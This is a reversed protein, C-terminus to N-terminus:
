AKLNESVTKYAKPTCQYEYGNFLKKTVKVLIIYPATWIHSYFDFLNTWTNSYKVWSRRLWFSHYNTPCDIYSQINWRLAQVVLDIKILSSMCVCVCMTFSWKIEYAQLCIPNISCLLNESLLPIHLKVIFKLINM